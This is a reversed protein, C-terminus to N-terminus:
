LNQDSLEHKINARQAQWINEETNGTLPFGNGFHWIAAIQM